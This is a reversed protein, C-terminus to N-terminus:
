NAPNEIGSQISAQKRQRATTFHRLYHLIQSDRVSWLRHRNRALDIDLSLSRVVRANSRDILEQAARRDRSIMQRSQGPVRLLYGGRKANWGTVDYAFAGVVQVLLSWSLLVSFGIMAPRRLVIRDIVPILFLALLPMTDVIPRYGFCWGGWWDFWKFAIGWLVLVALSLPRLVPIAGRRWARIAGWVAFIMFPSYVLLGRSPSLLLGAAGRWMPTQWVEESGTKYQAVWAARVTQGFRFPSGLYYWNYAGLAIAIPLGAMAYFVLANRNTLLLYAGVALVLIASTPRCAVALAYAVGCCAAHHRQPGIRTLFYTGLALFFENAGHQWLTQSSVAWVCTGLGYASAILLARRPTTYQRASLFVFAVSGAVLASAVFKAGYWLLRPHDALDGIVLHLVAFVPLATLGAGPGFTGVYQREGGPRDTRVSPLLYYRESDLALSGDRRLSEASTGAVQEDWSALLVPRADGTTQLKWVFMFPMESPTFSLNGENLLSLSM